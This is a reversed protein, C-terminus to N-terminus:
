FDSWTVFGPFQAGRVRATDPAAQQLNNSTAMASRGQQLVSESNGLPGCLARGTQRTAQTAYSKVLLNLQPDM